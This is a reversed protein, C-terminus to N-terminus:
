TKNYFCPYSRVMEAFLEDEPLTLISRFHEKKKRVIEKVFDTFASKQRRIYKLSKM